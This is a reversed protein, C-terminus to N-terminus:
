ICRARRMEGHSSHPTNLILVRSVKALLKRIQVTGRVDRRPIDKAKRRYVPMSPQPKKTGDACRAADGASKGRAGAADCATTGAKASKAEVAGHTGVDVYDAQPAQETAIDGKTAAKKEQVVM